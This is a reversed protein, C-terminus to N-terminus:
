ARRDYEGILRDFGREAMRTSPPQAAARRTAAAALACLMPVLTLSVVASM